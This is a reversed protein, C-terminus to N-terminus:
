RYGAISPRDGAPLPKIADFPEHCAQCRWHEKCATSGFASVQETRSSGCHPCEPGIGHLSASLDALSILVRDAPAPVPPAIGFRRLKERAVATIWDTSWPPSLRRQVRVDTAGGDRLAVTIDHEITEIAPCGIYTPTIVVTVRDVDVVVDRVIGLEGIGVMPLEPDPVAHALERARMSTIVM